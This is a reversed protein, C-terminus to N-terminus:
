NLYTYFFSHLTFGEPYVAYQKTSHWHAHASIPWVERTATFHHEWYQSCCPNAADTPMMKPLASHQRCDHSKASLFSVAPLDSYQNAAYSKFATTEPFDGCIKTARQTGLLMKLVFLREM